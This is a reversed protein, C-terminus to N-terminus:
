TRMRELLSKKYNFHWLVISMYYNIYMKKQKKNKQNLLSLSYVIAKITSSTVLLIILILRHLDGHYKSYFFYKSQLMASVVGNNKIRSLGGFHIIHSDPYYVVKWSASRIRICIDADEFSFILREDLYGVEELAIKRFFLSCGCAHAVDCTKNEAPVSDFRRLKLITGLSFADYFESALTPEKVYCPHQISGDSNFIKPTLAGVSSNRDLFDVALDISDPLTLTDSNLMLIYRGRCIPFAINNAKAFGLNESNQILIVSKFNDKIMEISGDVSANDVVIIEFNVKKITNYISNLCDRLIESTNWNIIVISLDM